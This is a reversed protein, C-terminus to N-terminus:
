RQQVHVMTLKCQHCVLTAAMATVTLVTVVMLTVSTTYQSRQSKLTSLLTANSYMYFEVLTGGSHTGGTYTLFYELYKVKKLFFALIIVIFEVCLQM